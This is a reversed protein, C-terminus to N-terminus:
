VNWKDKLAQVDGQTIGILGYHYRAVVGLFRGLVKKHTCQQAGDRLEPATVAPELKISLESAIPILRALMLINNQSRAKEFADAIISMAAVADRKPLSRVYTVSDASSKQAIMRRLHKEFTPSQQRDRETKKARATARQSLRMKVSEFINLSTLASTKYTDPRFALVLNQALPTKPHALSVMLVDHAFARFEDDNQLLVGIDARARQAIQRIDDGALAEACAHEIAATVVYIGAAVREEDLRCLWGHVIERCQMCTTALAVEARVSEEGFKAELVIRECKKRLERQIQPPFAPLISDLKGSFDAFDDCRALAAIQAFLKRFGAPLQIKILTSVLESQARELFPTITKEERVM